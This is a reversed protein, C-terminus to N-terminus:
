VAELVTDAQRRRHLHAATDRVPTWHQVTKTGINNGTLGGDSHSSPGGTSSAVRSAPDSVQSDTDSLRRDLQDDSMQLPEDDTVIYM